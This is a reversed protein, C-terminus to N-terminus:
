TKLLPSKGSLYDLASIRWSKGDKTLSLLQLPNVTSSSEVAALIKVISLFTYSCLIAKPQSLSNLM